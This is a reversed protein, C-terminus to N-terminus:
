FGGNQVRSDDQQQLKISTNQRKDKGAVADILDQLADTVDVLMINDVSVKLHAM